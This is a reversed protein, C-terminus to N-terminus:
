RSVPTEPRGGLREFLYFTSRVYHLDSPLRLGLASAVRIPPEFPPGASAIMGYREGAFLAKVFAEASPGAAHQRAYESTAIFDLRMSLYDNADFDSRLMLGGIEYGATDFSDPPRPSYTQDGHFSATVGITSGRPVAEAMFAGLERRPDEDFQMPWVYSVSLQAAFVGAAIQVAAAVRARGGALKAARRGLSDLAVAALIAFLPAVIELHRMMDGGVRGLLLWAFVFHAILPVDVDERRRCLRAFGLWGALATVSGFAYPATTFVLKWPLAYGGGQHTDNAAGLGAIFADPFLLAEFNGFAYGAAAGVSVAGIDRLAASPSASEGRSARFRQVVVALLPAFGAVGSLITATALGACAGGFGLATRAGTRARLALLLAAASLCAMVVDPRAYHSDLVSGPSVALLAAAVLGVREGGVRLGILYVLAVCGIGAVVSLVRLVVVTWAFGRSDELGVFREVGRRALWGTRIYFAGGKVFTMETPASYLNEAEFYAEHEDPHYPARNHGADGPLGWFLGLVRLTLALLLIM